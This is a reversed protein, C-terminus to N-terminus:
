KDPKTLSIVKREQNGPKVHSETHYEPYKIREYGGTIEEPTRTEKEEFIKEDTKNSFNLVNNNSLFIDHAILGIKSNLENRANIHLKTNNNIEIYKENCIATVLNNSKKPNNKRFFNVFTFPFLFLKEYLESIKSTDQLIAYFSFVAVFGILLILVPNATDITMFLGILVVLSIVGILMNIVYLLLNQFPHEKIRNFFSKVKIGSNSLVSETYDNKIEEISKEIERNKNLINEVDAMYQLVDNHKEIASEFSSKDMILSNNGLETLFRQYSDPDIREIVRDQAILPSDTFTLESYRTIKGSFKYGKVIVKYEGTDDLYSSSVTFLTNKEIAFINKRKTKFEINNEAIRYVDENLLDGTYEEKLYIM